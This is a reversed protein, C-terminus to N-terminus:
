AASASSKAPAAEDRMTVFEEAATPHIGVTADFDAKRAKCKIAIALGQIIEGADPGVMHCGLVRDSDADVVLKMLTKEQAGTLTHKLPTFVSRYIAVRKHKARAAAETLGVAGINPQSFVAHPVNDHNAPRPKKGYVTDAFAHGEMIAVPTLRIRDTLDGVAYINAVNTRSWDDVVAAGSPALRVGAQELGIGATNPSRGTAALVKDAAIKRGDQMVVAVGNGAREVRSVKGGMAFKVGRKQMEAALHKRVDDDFGRLLSDGRHIVTVDAGLGNFIGAFECAIFAGGLIAVRGPMAPLDFADDSDICHEAGPIDPKVPRGGTAILVTEASSRQGHLSVTHADELVARGDLVKAGARSLAARYVGELRAIERDKAAILEPWSFTAEGVRWGFGEADTFQHSFESAYVLLKKPICGRIVCTGGYRSQEVIAVRAGHTAAVRAARVGGSGGGIVFLDYDYKAM